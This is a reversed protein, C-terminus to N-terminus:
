APRATSHRPEARERARESSSPLGPVDALRLSLVRSEVRNHLTIGYIASAAEMTRRNHTIVIFQTRTALSTLVNCFRRVNSEDLAADVEDLVCFPPPLAEILAIILAAATLAREGGSLQALATARKGPPQAIIEIGGEEEAAILQASGGGFMEVFRRSFRDAVVAFTERFRMRMAARTEDITQRLTEITRELDGAQETLFALRSREAEYESIVGAGYPLSRLRTRIAEIRSRLREPDDVERLESILTSGSALTVCLGAAEIAAHQVDGLELAVQRLLSDIELVARERRQELARMREVAAREDEEAARLEAARARETGSAEDIAALLASRHDDLVSIQQLTQASQRSREEIEQWLQELERSATNQRECVRIAQERLRTLRSHTEQIMTATRQLEQRTSSLAARLEFLQRAEDAIAKEFAEGDSEARQLRAAASERAATAAEEAQRAQELEAQVAALEGAVRSLAEQHWRAADAMREQRHRAADLAARHQQLADEAQRRMGTLEALQSAAAELDSRAAAVASVRRDREASLRDVLTRMQRLERQRALTGRNQVAAGGTVTGVPRVIEGHLTVLQWAPSIDRLLRRAAALDPIILTHGLLFESVLRFRPEAVRVLDAAVGLPESATPAPPRRPPRLTDLPLFTARGAGTRKLFAIAAEADEWRAVVLDQVHSGLATEIATELTDDVEIIGAVVGLIGTLRERAQGRAARLVARVGAFYGAGGSEVDQLAELRARALGLDRDVAALGNEHERLTERLRAVTTERGRVQERLHHLHEESSRLQYQVREVEQRAADLATQADSLRRAHEAYSQQLRALQDRLSGYRIAATSRETEAERQERRAAEIAERLIARRREWDDARDSLAALQEALVQQQRHLRAREDELGNLRAEEKEIEAALRTREATAESIRQTLVDARLRDTHEAHELEAQQRQLRELRSSVEALQATLDARHRAVQELEVALATRRAAAQEQQGRVRAADRDVDGIERFPHALLHGYWRLLERILEAQLRERERAQRAQHELTRLRPALEAVVAAIRQQNQEAQLLRERADALRGQLHGLAAAQEILGRRDEPRLSLAADIMGQGVIAVGDASLGAQELIEVLERLRVRDRNLLYENEGSRYARRSVMVEDYPVPLWRETNDFLLSVEAMGAPPRGPGGAFLVDETRRGRLVRLSQEGLVWRVADAINSKGSGNPGVIATIGRDFVLSTRGSFSKFGALSLSRLRVVPHLPAM